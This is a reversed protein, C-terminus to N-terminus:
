CRRSLVSSIAAKGLAGGGLNGHLFAIDAKDGCTLLKRRRRRRHHGNMPLGMARAEAQSLIKMDAGEPFMAGGGTISQGGGATSGMTSSMLRETLMNAGVGLAAGAVGGVGAAAAQAVYRVGDYIFGHIAM